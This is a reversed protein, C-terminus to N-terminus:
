VVGPLREGCRRWRGHLSGQDDDAEGDQQGPEQPWPQALQRDAAQRAVDDDVLGAELEVHRDGGHQEDASEDGEEEPEEARLLGGRRRGFGYSGGYSGAMRAVSR